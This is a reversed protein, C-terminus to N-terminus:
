RFPYLGWVQAATVYMFVAFGLLFPVLVLRVWFIKTRRLQRVAYEKEADTTAGYERPFIGLVTGVIASFWLLLPLFLLVKATPQGAVQKAALSERVTPAYMAMVIGCTTAVYKLSDVLIDLAKKELEDYDAVRPPREDPPRGIIVESASASEHKM